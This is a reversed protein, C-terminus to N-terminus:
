EPEIISARKGLGFGTLFAAEVFAMRMTTTTPKSLDCVTAFAGMM